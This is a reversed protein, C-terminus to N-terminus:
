LQHIGVMRCVWRVERWQVDQTRCAPLDQGAVAGTMSGAFPQHVHRCSAEYLSRIGAGRQAHSEEFIDHLDEPGVMEPVVRVRSFECRFLCRSDIRSSTGAGVASRAAVVM